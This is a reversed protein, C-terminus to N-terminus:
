RTDSSSSIRTAVYWLDKKFVRETTRVEHFLHHEDFTDIVSYELLGLLNTQWLDWSKIEPHHWGSLGWAWAPTEAFCIYPARFSSVSSRMNPRLGYKTIQKHRESPSWHFLPQRPHILPQDM